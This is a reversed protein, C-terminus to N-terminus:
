DLVAILDVEILAEPRLLAKVGIPTVAPFRAGFLERRHANVADYQQLGVAYDTVQVVNDWSAGVAELVQRHKEYAMAAQGKIDGPCLVNGRDDTGTTGSLFLVKGGRTAAAVCATGAAGPYSLEIRRDDKARTPLVAIASVEILAGPPLLQEVVIGTSAPFGNKWFARRVDATEKYNYTTTVFDTTKVVDDISGGAAEVIRQINSLVQRTQAVMDGPAMLNGQEDTATQGAICLINGKRIVGPAFTWEAYRPLHTGVIQREFTDDPDEPVIATCDVEIKPIKRLMNKIIIGTAAPYDKSWIERRVRATDRYGEDTSIYDISKVVDVFTADGSELILRIKELAAHTQDCFDDSVVQGYDNTGTQGSVFFLKGDRAVGPSFTYRAFGPFGPNIIEKAAM